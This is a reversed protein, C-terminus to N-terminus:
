YVVLSFKNQGKFLQNYLFFFQQGTAVSGSFNFFSSLIRFSGDLVLDSIQVNRPVSIVLAVEVLKMRWLNELLFLIFQAFLWCYTLLKSGNFLMLPRGLFSPLSYIACRFLWDDVCYVVKLYVMFGECGWKSSLLNSSWVIGM